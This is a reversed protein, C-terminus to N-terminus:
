KVIHKWITGAFSVTCRGLLLMSPGRGDADHKVICLDCHLVAPPHRRRLVLPASARKPRNVGSNAM